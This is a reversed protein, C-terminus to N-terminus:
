NEECRPSGAEGASGAGETSAPLLTGPERDYKRSGACLISPLCHSPPTHTQKAASGAGVAALYPMLGSLMTRYPCLMPVTGVTSRAERMCTRRQPAASAVGVEPMRTAKGSM